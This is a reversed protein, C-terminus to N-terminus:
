TITLCCGLEHDCGTLVEDRCTVSQSAAGSEEELADECARSCLLLVEQGSFKNDEISNLVDDESESCLYQRENASKTAEFPDYKFGIDGSTPYSTLLVDSEVVTKIHADPRYSVSDDSDDIYLCEACVFKAPISESISIGVCRTHQWVGCTDCALMPEGDDDTAGCICDVTWKDTGREMRYLSLGHKMQCRGKIRVEGYTGVLIQLTMSDDVPGYDVLEDAQFRKLMAYVEQFVETAEKKLDAVTATSALVILESPLSLECNPQDTLEVQCWVLLSGPNKRPFLSPRYDKVFQKCDLIRTVSTGVLQRVSDSGISDVPNLVSYYIFKLDRIVQVRPPHIKELISPSLLNPLELRFEVVNSKLNCRAKVVMGNSATKGPLNKLCYELLDASAAKSVAGKLSRRSVWSSNGCATMLVRMMAQEVNQVECSTWECLVKSTNGKKDRSRPKNILGLIFSFLDKLTILKSDSLSQYFSIVALLRSQPKRPQFSFMSLPMSLLTKLAQDYSDRTLGYCGAGFEYEWQGYWSQGESIANLLRYELGYKKSVDMVTVKRVCLVKCIRDWFNMIDYGSLFKSGGERGNVTLLHGYGNSHVVGHLLHTSDGLQDFVWDELDESSVLTNCIKCRADLLHLMNGCGSCPKQYEEVSGTDARIIFHYRKCCVPNGSWGVVRCHDCYVDSRSRTADEEVVHVSLLVPHHPQLSFLIQWTLVSPFLSPQLPLGRPHNSLFTKIRTRFPEYPLHNNYDRDRHLPQQGSVFDYFNYPEMSNSPRKTRKAPRCNVVM